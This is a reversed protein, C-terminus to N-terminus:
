QINFEITSGEKIGLKAAVGADVELVKDILGPPSYMPFTAGTPVAAKDAVGIVKDGRIWVIDIPFKVDKMWFPYIASVPFVFFMGQNEALRDRGSLGQSRSAFSDAIEVYIINGNVKVTGRALPQGSNRPILLFVLVIILLLAFASFFLIKGM